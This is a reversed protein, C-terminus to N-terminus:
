SGASIRLRFNFQARGGPRLANYAMEVVDEQEKIWQFASNSFVLDFEEKFDMTQAPINLLSINAVSLTKEEAKAFMEASPDIGVVKGKHALLALELTLEWNRM